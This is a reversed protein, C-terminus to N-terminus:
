EWLRQSLIGAITCGRVVESCSVSIRTFNYGQFSVENQMQLHSYEHVNRRKIEYLTVSTESTSIVEMNIAM